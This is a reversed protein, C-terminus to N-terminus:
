LIYCEIGNQKRKSPWTIYNNNKEYKLLRIILTKRKGNYNLNRFHCLIKLTKKTYFKPNRKINPDKELILLDYKAKKLQSELKKINQKKSVLEKNYSKEQLYTVGNRKLWLPCINKKFFKNIM